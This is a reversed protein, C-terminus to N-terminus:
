PQKVYFTNLVAEFVSNQDPYFEVHKEGMVSQGSISNYVISNGLNSTLCCSAIYTLESLKIDTVTYPKATDYLVTLKGFDSMVQNGAQSAFTTMYHKQRLMRRTNADTDKGRWRIYANVMEGKLVVEKGKALKIKSDDTSVSEIPTLRVGGMADNLAIVGDLDIAVYSSIEIGYLLRSVSKRVNECSEEGNSGYAYALCLQEKEVGLYSGEASYINVDVMADRSIPLIKISGTKTDLNIVMVSDAQGNSGYGQQTSIDKKDIGMFLVNVADENYLYTEGNYVVKSGDELASDVMEEPVSVDVDYDFLSVKGMYWLTSFTIVLAILLGLIVSLIILIVKLARRKKKKGKGNEEIKQMEKLDPNNENNFNDSPSSTM